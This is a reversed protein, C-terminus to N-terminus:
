TAVELADAIRRLLYGPTFTGNTNTPMRPTIHAEDFQRAITRITEPTPAADDAYKAETWLWPRGAALAARLDAEARPGMMHGKPGTYDRVLALRDRAVALCELRPNVFVARKYDHDASLIGDMAAIAEEIAPRILNDTTSTM